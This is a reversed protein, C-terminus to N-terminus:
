RERLQREKAAAKKPERDHWTAVAYAIALLVFFIITWLHKMPCTEKELKFTLTWPSVARERSRCAEQFAALGKIAALKSQTVIPAVVQRSHVGAFCRDCLPRRGQTEGSRHIQPTAAVSLSLAVGLGSVRNGLGLTGM